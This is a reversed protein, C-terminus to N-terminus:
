FGCEQKALTTLQDRGIYDHDEGQELTCSLECMEGDYSYLTPGARLSVTNVFAQAGPQLIVANEGGDPFIIDPDFAGNEIEDREAQTVFIYAMTAPGNGFM